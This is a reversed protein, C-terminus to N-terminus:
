TEMSTQPYFETFNKMPAWENSDTHREKSVKTEPGVVNRKAFSKMRETNVAGIKTGNKDLFFWKDEPTDGSDPHLAGPAFAPPPSHPPPSPPLNNKEMNRRELERRELQAYGLLKFVWSSTDDSRFDVLFIM